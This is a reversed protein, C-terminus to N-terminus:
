VHESAAAHQRWPRASARRASVMAESVRRASVMAERQRPTSVNHGRASKSAGASAAHGGSVDRAPALPMADCRRAYQQCWPGVMGAERAGRLYRPTPASSHLMRAM